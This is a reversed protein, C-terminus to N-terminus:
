PPQRARVPDLSPGQPLRAALVAAVRVPNTGGYGLIKPVDASALPYLRGLDTVLALTGTAAQSNAVVSILAAHGAPVGVRDALPAGNPSHGPTPQQTVDAPVTAGVAVRPVAGGPAFAACVAATPSDPRVFAPRDSPPDSAATAPTTQDALTVEAPDLRIPRPSRGGYV